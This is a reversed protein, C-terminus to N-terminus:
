RLYRKIYSSLSYPQVIGDEEGNKWRIIYSQYQFDTQCKQSCYKQSNSPLEKGCYACYKRKLKREKKTNNYSAACSQDCFKKIKYSSFCKENFPIDKGCYLCQKKNKNYWAKLQEKTLKSFHTCVEVIKHKFDYITVCKEFGCEQCIGRYVYHGHKDKEPLVSDIVYIGYQEGIHINPDIGM